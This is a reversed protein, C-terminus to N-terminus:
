VGSHRALMWGAAFLVALAVLNSIRISLRTNSTLMFPIVVPFTTVVVSLFVGLTGLFDITGLRPRVPEGQHVRAIARQVWPSATNRM